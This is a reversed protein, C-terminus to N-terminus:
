GFTELRKLWMSIVGSRIVQEFEAGGTLHSVNLMLCIVALIEEEGSNAVIESSYYDYLRKPHIVERPDQVVLNLQLMKGSFQELLASFDEERASNNGVEEFRPLFVLLERFRNHDKHKNEVEDKLSRLSFVLDDQDLDLHEFLSRLFSIKSETNSGPPICLEDSVRIFDIGRDNTVIDEPSQLRRLYLSKESFELLKTRHDRVLTGLVRILMEQWSSVVIMSSGLDYGVISRGTFNIDSSLAETELSNERPEFKTEPYAWYSIALEELIKARSILEPLGWSEQEKVMANLRYPSSVFGEPDEKKERFSRNSYESNYGTVTLNAIRHVWEAHIKECDEGLESRWKETLTQPIIHEISIDGRKLANSIDRVDKSKGNELCDFLYQRYSPRMRYSNRQTFERRFEQDGPFRGGGDRRLLLYTLIESYPEDNKRLKVLDAYATSFIKNLSNAAISCTIRRYLYSELMKVVQLFDEGTTVQRRVDRLLPMLLPLVVDGKIDNFRRLVTDVAVIGTEANEIQRCIISYELLSELVESIDQKDRLIYEKFDEYVANKNPTRGTEVVLWWRIFWDTNYDVAKEMPNWYRDYLKAQTVTGQGMLVLNRIKDAESLALGTSNLSEFIRQPNDHAELDLQMVELRQIAKWVDDATLSTHDLREMFYLYNSIVNSSSSRSGGEVFLQEYASFDDKVPKLKLKITENDDRLLLYSEKINKSLSGDSCEIAGQEIAHVLAVMLLSVTTLRQQGDIVVWKWSSESVGVVAGFFHKPRGEDIINELDDFLRRCQKVTWDYNRQYVPIIIEKNAGDYVKWVEQMSEKM